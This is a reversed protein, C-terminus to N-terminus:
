AGAPSTPPTTCPPTPSPAATSRSRSWCPAHRSSAAADSTGSSMSCNPSRKPPPCSTPSRGAPARSSFGAQAQDAALDCKIVIGDIGFALDARKAAIQEIREQVQELTEAVIGAVPTAATTQVGQAAVWAM